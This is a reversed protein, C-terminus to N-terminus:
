VPKKKTMARITCVIVFVLGLLVVILGVFFMIATLPTFLSDGGRQFNSGFSMLFGVCATASLAIGGGLTVLAQKWSPFRQRPEAPRVEPTDM